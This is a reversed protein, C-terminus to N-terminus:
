MTPKRESKVEDYMFYAETLLERGGRAADLYLGQFEEESGSNNSYDIDM